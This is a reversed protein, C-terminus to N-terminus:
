NEVGDASKGSRPQLHYYALTDRWKDQEKLLWEAFERIAGRGGRADCHLDAYDLADNAADGVAVGIGCNVFTECDILDDGIMACEGIDLKYETCLKRMTELKDRCHEILFDLKLEEARRKNAFSERGSICGVIIGQRQMFKIGAGDKVDFFKAEEGVGLGYVIRGDTLVGDIDLAVLKIYKAAEIIGKDGEPFKPNNAGLIKM